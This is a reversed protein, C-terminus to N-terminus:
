EWGRNDCVKSGQRFSVGRKFLIGKGSNLLTNGMVADHYNLTHAYNTNFTNQASFDANTMITTPTFLLEPSETAKPMRGILWVRPHSCHLRNIVNLSKENVFIM